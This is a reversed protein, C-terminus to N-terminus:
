IKLMIEGLRQQCTDHEALLEERSIKDGQLGVFQRGGTNVFHGMYEPIHALLWDLVRKRWEASETFAATVNEHGVAIFLRDRIQYGEIAFLGLAAIFLHNKRANRSWWYAFGLGILLVAGCAYPIWPFSGRRDQPLAAMTIYFALFSAISVGLLTTSLAVAFNRRELM